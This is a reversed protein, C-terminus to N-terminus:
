RAGGANIHPARLRRRALPSGASRPQSQCRGSQSFDDQVQDVVWARTNEAFPVSRFLVSAVGQGTM